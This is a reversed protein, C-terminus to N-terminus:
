TRHSEKIKPTYERIATDYIRRINRDTQGRFDAIKQPSWNRILIFYLVEKQNGNPSELANSVKEDSVLDDIEYPCDFIVDLFYGSMLQRWLRHKIPQPFVTESLYTRENLEKETKAVTSFPLEHYREKRERNEHLKDWTQVVNEFDAQTRASDEIRTLAERRVERM